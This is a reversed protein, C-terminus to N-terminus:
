ILRSFSFYFFFRSNLKFKCIFTLSINENALKSSFLILLLILKFNIISIFYKLYKVPSTLTFTYPPSDFWKRPIEEAPIPIPYCLTASGSPFLSKPTPTLGTCAPSIRSQCLMSIFLVENRIWSRSRTSSRVILKKRMVKEAKYIYIHIYTINNNNNHTKNNNHTGISNLFIFIYIFEIDNRNKQIRVELPIKVRM